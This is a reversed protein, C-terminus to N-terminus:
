RQHLNAEVFVNTEVERHARVRPDRFGGENELGLGDLAVV